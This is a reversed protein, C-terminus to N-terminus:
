TCYLTVTIPLSYLLPLRFICEKGLSYMDVKTTVKVKKKVECIEPAIYLATGVNGSATGGGDTSLSGTPELFTASEQKLSVHSTALGFDGIKIRGSADMFINTPKLGRHIIGCAHVHAM